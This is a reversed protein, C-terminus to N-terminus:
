RICIAVRDFKTVTARLALRYRSESRGSHVQTRVSTPALKETDDLGSNWMVNQLIPM